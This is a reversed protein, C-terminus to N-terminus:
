LFALASLVSESTIFIEKSLNSCKMGDKGLSRNRFIQYGILNSNLMKDRKYGKRLSYQPQRSGVEHHTSAKNKSGSFQPV